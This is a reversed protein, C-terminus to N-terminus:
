KDAVAPSIRSAPLNGRLEPLLLAAVRSVGAVITHVSVLMEGSEVIALLLSIIIVAVDRVPM